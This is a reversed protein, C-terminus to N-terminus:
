KNGLHLTIMAEPDEGKNLKRMVVRYGGYALGAGLCGLILLGSFIFVNLIFKATNRIENQPVKENLTLNTKWRVKSLIREAEDADPPAITVAVLPGVRRAITGPIKQFEQERDRAINPTPYNFIALTLLGKPTRYKGVQVECGLHFAAVSPAMGPFFRDLSVPGLLYRESNPVLDDKPLYTMLAPLPAQELKPPNAYLDNLDAPLSGTLQFVYNGYAFITGDSTHAALSTLDSVTAGSPRRAEFMAMAGTADRFRWATATFRQSDSVYEAQETADLGYEDYLAQDPVAITKPATKKFTGVTDPFIAAHGIVAFLLLGTLITAAPERSRAGEKKVGRLMKQIKERERVPV